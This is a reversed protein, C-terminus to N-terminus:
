KLHEPQSLIDTRAATESSVSRASYFDGLVIQKINSRQNAFKSNELIIVRSLM